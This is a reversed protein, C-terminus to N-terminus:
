GSMPGNGTTSGVRQPDRHLAPESRVGMVKLMVPSRVGFERLLKLRSYETVRQVLM